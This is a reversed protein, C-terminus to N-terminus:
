ESIDGDSQFGGLYKWNVNGREILQGSLKSEIERFSTMMVKGFRTVKKRQSYGRMDGFEKAKEDCSVVQGSRKQGGLSSREVRM